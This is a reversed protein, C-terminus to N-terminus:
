LSLRGSMLSQFKRDAGSHARFDRFATLRPYGGALLAANCVSDKALYLRGGCDAIVADLRKLLAFTAQSVPFDLALTYGEMPFSLMGDSEPGLLKLVALFSGLGARSIERLLRMLNRDADFRPVVCQYQVFGRRGYIRNWELIADLPFFARDYDLLQTGPRGRRYYLTNFAAVSARNLAFAPFDLPVRRTRRQPILRPAARVQAPLDDLAAHDGRYLLSRGLSAGGALCDIWAVTYPSAGSAAYLALVEDLDRARVTEQRLYATAIPKLRIKASLIVGTLGMGGRTAAFLPEGPHCHVVQGASDLLTIGAVHDCFTGAQHHNKGHIDSAIAGGVTVFKTGPVVAPFWGRPVFVELIDALLVGAECTLWGAHPDFDLFRNMGTIGLTLDRCLAPDGYSRGNGRAILTGRARVAHCVDGESRAAAFHVDTCPYRGWGSLKM